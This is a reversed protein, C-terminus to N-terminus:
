PADPPRPVERGHPDIQPDGITKALEEQMAADTVHELDMAPRHLHDAPIAMHEQLYAEWLRHSRVLSQGLQHGRDTLQDVSGDTAIEGRRRLSGIALWHALVGCGVARCFHARPNDWPIHQEDVRYLFGLYDEGIVHLRVRLRRFAMPIVGRAPSLFMVVIFIALSMTAMMAASPADTAGVWPPIILAGVHGLAAAAVALVLSLFIMVGLRDTLIWATAPPIILFAVVLISGAVEFAAVTTTAVLVMILLRIATSRFGLADALQDDFSTIKLEKYFLLIAGLNIVSMVTLIIVPRPIDMGWLPIVDLSVFVINGYLVCDPDLDVADAYRVILLLGFAFLTTFVIGMSAGEDVKVIRHLFETLLATLLGVIAAGLLMMMPDRTGTILFALVLGPLVAHSIADGLMAMRRLVLFNGISACSVACLAGVVVIWTDLAQWM